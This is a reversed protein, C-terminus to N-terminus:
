IIMKYCTTNTNRYYTYYINYWLFFILIHISTHLVNHELTELLAELHKPSTSFFALPLACIKSDIYFRHLIM